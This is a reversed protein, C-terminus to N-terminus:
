RRFCRLPLSFEGGITSVNADQHQEVMPGVGYDAAPFPRNGRDPSITFPIQEPIRVMGGVLLFYAVARSLRERGGASNLNIEM